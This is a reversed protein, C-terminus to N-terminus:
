SSALLRRNRRSSTSISLAAGVGLSVSLTCSTGCVFWNITLEGYSSFWSVDLADHGDQAVGLGLAALEDEVGIAERCNNDLGREGLNGALWLVDGGGVAYGEV